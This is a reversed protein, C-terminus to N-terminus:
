QNFNASEASKRVEDEEKEIKVDKKAPKRCEVQFVHQRHSFFSEPVKYM